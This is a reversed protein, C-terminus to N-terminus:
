QGGAPGVRGQADAELLALFPYGAERIRDGGGQGRDLIVAVLVVSCGAQEVARIAQFLSGGTTCTDDVIAVRANPPLPGEIQRGMGHGKAEKRVIVAPIPRGGDYESWVAVATVMPDAGLTPGGIAEVEAERLKPLLAQAVLNAGRPSLTLLRGDFYFSSEEGSALTFKGHVLAGGAEACDLVAQAQAQVHSEAMEEEARGERMPGSHGDGQGGYLRQTRIYAVVPEPALHQIPLGGAVRRRIDSSSIEVLPAEVQLVRDAAAGLARKVAEIDSAGAGPRPAVAVRALQLIRLPEKWQPFGRLADAGMIFFLEDATGREGRLQELTDVTYTVGPRDLEIASTTVLPSSEVALELMAKRHRAAPLPHDRKMWPQGAPVLWVRDLDLQEAVAQAVILHGLHVPDFTGGFIGLKM